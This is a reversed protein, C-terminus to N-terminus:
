PVAVEITNLLIRQFRDNIRQKLVDKMKPIDEFFFGRIAETFQAFNM